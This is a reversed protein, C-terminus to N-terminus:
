LMRDFILGISKKLNERVKLIEEPPIERIVEETKADIISIAMRGTGKDLTFQIRKSEQTTASEQQSQTRDQEPPSILNKKRGPEDKSSLAVDEFSLKTPKGSQRSQSSEYHIAPTHVDDGPVALAMTSHSSIADIYM